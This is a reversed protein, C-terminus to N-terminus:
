RAKELRASTHLIRGDKDILVTASCVRCYAWVCGKDDARVRELSANSDCRICDPLTM